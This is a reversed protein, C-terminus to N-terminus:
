VVDKMNKLTMLNKMDKISRTYSCHFGVEEEEGMQKYVCGDLM